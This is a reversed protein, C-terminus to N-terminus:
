EEEMYSDCVAEYYTGSLYNFREKLDIEAKNNNCYGDLNWECKANCKM